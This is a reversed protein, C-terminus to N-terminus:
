GSGRHIFQFFRIANHDFLNNAWLISPDLFKQGVVFPCDIIWLLFDWHTAGPLSDQDGGQGFAHCSSKVSYEIAVADPHAVEM